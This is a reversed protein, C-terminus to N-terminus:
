HNNKTVERLLVKNKEELESMESLLRLRSEMCVAYKANIFAMYSRLSTYNSDPCCAHAPPKIEDCSLWGCGTCVKLEDVTM